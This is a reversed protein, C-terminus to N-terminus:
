GCRSCCSLLCLACLRRTSVLEGVCPLAGNGTYGAPCDDCLRSGVTNTCNTIWDCGGNGVACENVDRCGDYGNGSFGAPCAGCVRTGPVNTCNVRSDCAGNSVLCENIDTGCVWSSGLAAFLNFCPALCRCDCPAFSPAGTCGLRASGVYGSPCDGCTFNGPTNTCITLPDCGGNNSECENIDTLRL